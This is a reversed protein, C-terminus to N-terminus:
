LASMPTLSVKTGTTINLEEGHPVIWDLASQRRVTSHRSRRGRSELEPMRAGNASWGEAPYAPLPKVPTIPSGNDGDIAGKTQEKDSDDLPPKEAEEAELPPLSSQKRPVAPDSPLISNQLPPATPPAATLAQSPEVGRPPADPRSAREEDEPAAVRPIPHLYSAM